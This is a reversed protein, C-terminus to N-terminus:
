RKYDLIYIMERNTTYVLAGQRDSEREARIRLLTERLSWVANRETIVYQRFSREKNEDHWEQFIKGYGEPSVELVIRSDEGIVQILGQEYVTTLAQGADRASGGSVPILPVASKVADRIGQLLEEELENEPLYGTKLREENSIDPYCTTFLEETGSDIFEALDRGPEAAAEKQKEIAEKMGEYGEPMMTSILTVKGTDERTLHMTIGNACKWELGEAAGTSGAMTGTGSLMEPQVNLRATIHQQVEEYWGPWDTESQIQVLGNDGDFRMTRTLIGRVEQGDEDVATYENRYVLESSGDDEELSVEDAVMVTREMAEEWSMGFVVDQPMDITHLDAYEESVTIENTVRDYSSWLMSERVLSEGFADITLEGKKTVKVGEEEEVVAAYVRLEGDADEVVMRSENDGLPRFCKDDAYRVYHTLPLMSYMDNYAYYINQLIAPRDPYYVMLSSAGQGLGVTYYVEPVGSEDYDALAASVLEKEGESGTQIVGPLSSVTQETSNLATPTVKGDYVGWIQGEAEFLRIGCDEPFSSPHLETVTSPDKIKKKECLTLLDEDSLDPTERIVFFEEQQEEIKEPTGPDTMNESTDASEEAASTEDAEEAQTSVEELTTRSVTEAETGPENNRSVMIGLFGGGIIIVGAAAAAINKLMTRGGKRVAFSEAAEIMDTDLFNLSEMLKKESENKPNNM